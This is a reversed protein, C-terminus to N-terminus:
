SNMTLFDASFFLPNAKDNESIKLNLKMTSRFAFPPCFNGQSVWATLPTITPPDSDNSDSEESGELESDTEGANKGVSECSDRICM